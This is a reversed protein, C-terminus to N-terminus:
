GADRRAGDGQGYRRFGGLNGKRGGGVGLEAAPQQAQLASSGGM